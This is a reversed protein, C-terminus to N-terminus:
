DKLRFGVKELGIKLGILKEEERIRLKGLLKDKGAKKNELSSIEDAMEGLVREFSNKEDIIESSSKEDLNTLSKKVEVLKEALGKDFIDLFDNQVDEILAQRFNDKYKRLLNRKKENKHYVSLLGKLDIQNKLRDIQNFLVKRENELEKEKKLFNRFRNSEKFELFDKEKKELLNRRKKVESELVKLENEMEEKLRVSEKFSFYDNLLIEFSKRKFITEKNDFFMKENLKFFDRIIRRVGAIEEGILINAVSYSKASEKEFRSIFKGVERFYNEFSSEKLERINWILKECYGAYSDKGELVRRKLRLDEKRNELNVGELVEIKVTFDDLFGKKIQLASDMLRKEVDEFGKIIKRVEEEYNELSIEKIEVLNEKKKFIDFLGM